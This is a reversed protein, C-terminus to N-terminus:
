AKAKVVLSSVPYLGYRKGGIPPFPMTRVRQPMEVWAHDGQMKVVRASFTVTGGNSTPHTFRVVTGVQIANTM